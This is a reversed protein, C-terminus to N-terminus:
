LRGSRDGEAFLPSADIGRQLGIVNFRDGMEGPLLLRRSEESARAAASADAQQLALEDLLGNGLLFSAQSSFGALQLGAGDAAEAVATFDVFATIDSLGPYWLPEYHARHRYHCVLTGDSREPLYFETRPYGYDVFLCAGRQMQETVAQLWWPLQVLTESRYGPLLARGLSREIRRVAQLLMADAPFDRRQLAGDAGFSVYEEMLEEEGIVFRTTPLADLVENAFLVGQWPEDPLRDLWDVRLFLSTPLREALNDRQRDRLDASPELIRYRRPTRGLADLALMADAAFAGSGGGLELVDAPSELQALLTAIARAVSRAFLPGLEPATVFDGAAGFKTAGASYYGLGPAYLALEMYRSFPIAGGAEAIALRITETLRASHELAHAEPEPLSLPIM